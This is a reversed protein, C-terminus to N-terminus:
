KKLINNKSGLICIGIKSNKYVTNIYVTVSKATKSLILGYKCNKLINYKITSKVSSYIGKINSKLTNERILTDKGINYIGYKANSYIKNNNINLSKAKNYIGNQYNQISFGRISTGTANTNVKIATGKKM